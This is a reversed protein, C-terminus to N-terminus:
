IRLGIFNQLYGTKKRHNTPITWRLGWLQESKSGDAAEEQVHECNGKM